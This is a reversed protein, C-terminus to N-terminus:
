WAGFWEEVEMGQLMLLQQELELEQEQQQDDVGDGHRLLAEWVDGPAGVLAEVGGVVRQGGPGGAAEGAEQMPMPMSADAQFWGCVEADLLVPDQETPVNAGPATPHVTRPGPPSTPLAAPAAATAAALGWPPPCAEVRRRVRRSGEDPACGCPQPQPVGSAPAAAGARAPASCPTALEAARVTYARQQQQGGPFCCCSCYEPQRAAHYLCPAALGQLRSQPQPVQNQGVDCGCGVGGCSCGGREVADFRRKGLVGRGPAAAPMLVQQGNGFHPMGGLGALQWLASPANDGPAAWQSRPPAPPDPRPVPPRVEPTRFATSGVLTPTVSTGWLQQAARRPAPPPSPLRVAKGRMPPFVPGTPAPLLPQRKPTHFGDSCSPSAEDDTMDWPGAHQEEEQEQEQPLRPAGPLPLTSYPLASRGPPQPVAPADPAAMYPRSKPTVFGASGTPSAEDDTSSWWPRVQEEQEQQGAPSTHPLHRQASRGYTQLVTPADPAPRLRLRQPTRFGASGAPLAEDDTSRWFQSEKAQEHELQATPPPRTLCRQASPGHTQLVTPANRAPPLGPTYFGSSGAPSAEDDSSSWSTQQHQEEQARDARKPRPPQPSPPEMANCSLESTAPARAPGGHCPPAEAPGYVPVLAWVVYRTNASHFAAGNPGPGPGWQDRPPNPANLEPLPPRLTPTRFGNACAPQPPPPSGSSRSGWSRQRQREVNAGPPPPSGSSNSDWSRQRQHENGAGLTQPPPPPSSLPETDTGDLFDELSLPRQRSRHLAHLAHMREAFREAPVERPNPSWQSRPPLAPANPVLLPPRLTPTRCEASDAVPQSGSPGPSPQHPPPPPPPSRPSRPSPPLVPLGPPAAMPNLLHCPLPALPLGAPAPGPAFASAGSAAAASSRPRPSDSNSAAAAPGVAGLRFPANLPTGHLSTPPRTSGAAAASPGAAAAAACAAPSSPRRHRSKSRKRLRRRELFGTLRAMVPGEAATSSVGLQVRPAPAYAAASGHGAAATATATPRATRFPQAPTKPVRHRASRADVTAAAPPGYMFSAEVDDADVDTDSSDTNDRASDTTGGGDADGGHAAVGVQLARPACLCANTQLKRVRPRAGLPLALM